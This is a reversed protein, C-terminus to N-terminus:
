PAAMTIFHSDWRDILSKAAQLGVPCSVSPVGFIFPSKDQGLTMWAACAHYGAHYRVNYKAQRFTTKVM